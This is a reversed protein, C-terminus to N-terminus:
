MVPMQYSLDDHLVPKVNVALQTKRIVAQLLFLWSLCCPFLIYERSIRRLSFQAFNRRTRNQLKFIRKKDKDKGVADYIYDLKVYLRKPLNLKLVNSGAM